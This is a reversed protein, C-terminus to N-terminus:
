AGLTWSPRIRPNFDPAFVSESMTLFDPVPLLSLSPSRRAGGPRYVFHDVFSSSGYHHMELLILEGHATVVRINDDHGQEVRASEPFDYYLYNSSPPAAGIFSVCVRRGKSTRSEAVTNADDAVFSSDDPRYCGYSSLMVWRWDEAAATAAPSDSLVRRHSCAPAFYQSIIPRQAISARCTILSLASFSHVPIRSLM